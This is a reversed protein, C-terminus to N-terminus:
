KEKGMIKWETSPDDWMEFIKDAVELKQRVSGKLKGPKRNDDGPLPLLKSPQIPKKTHPALMVAAM